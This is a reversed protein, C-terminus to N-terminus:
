RSDTCCVTLFMSVPITLRVIPFVGTANLISVPASTVIILSWVNWFRCFFCSSHLAFTVSLLGPPWSFHMPWNLLWLTYLSVSRVSWISYTTFPGVTFLSRLPLAALSIPKTLRISSTLVVVPSWPLCTLIRSLSPASGYAPLLAWLSGNGSSWFTFSSNSFISALPTVSPTVWGVSKHAGISGTILGLPCTRIHTSRFLSFSFILLSCNMSGVVSSIRVFSVPAFTNVNSSAALPKQYICNCGSLLRNVVKIMGNALYQKLLRRKPMLM